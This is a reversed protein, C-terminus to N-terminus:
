LLWIVNFCEADKMQLIFLSSAWKLYSFFWMEINLNLCVVTFIVGLQPIIRYINYQVTVSLRSRKQKEGHTVNVRASRRLDPDACGHLCLPDTGPHLGCFPDTGASRGPLRHHSGGSRLHFVSLSPPGHGALTGDHLLCSRPVSLTPHEWHWKFSSQPPLFVHTKLITIVRGSQLMIWHLSGNM